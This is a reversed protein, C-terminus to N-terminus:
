REARRYDTIMKRLLRKARLLQSASTNEGIGLKDAIEKHSLEGFVYLNFVTRYGDPLSRIMRMLAEQSIGTPDPSTDDATEPLDDTAEVILRKKRRLFMLAQNAVIRTAWASLSGHGRYSFSPANSFIKVFADQLVDKVDADDTIYRSCVAALLGAYAGYFSRM